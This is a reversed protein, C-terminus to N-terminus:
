WEGVRLGVLGALMSLVILLWAFVEIDLMM